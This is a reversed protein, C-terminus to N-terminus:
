QLLIKSSANQIECKNEIFELVKKVRQEDTEGNEETIGFFLLNDRMSRSKLDLIEAKM